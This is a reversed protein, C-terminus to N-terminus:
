DYKDDAIFLVVNPRRAEDASALRPAVLPATGLAIAFALRITRTM